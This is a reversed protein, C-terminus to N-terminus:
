LTISRSSTQIIVKNQLKYYLGKDYSYVIELIFDIQKQIISYPTKM